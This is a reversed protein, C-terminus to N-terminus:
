LNEAAEEDLLFVADRHLQLYSAPVEPTVPGSFVAAAASAKNSGTMLAVVRRANMLTKMGVTVVRGDGAREVHTVPALEGAGTNFVLGGDEAISVFAVDLGGAKMVRSEYDACSVSWNMSDADPFFLREPAVRVGDLLDKKIRYAVSAEEGARVREYLSFVTVDSWDLLGDGTMKALARYVPRLDETYDLGLVSRPQGILQAALLTAAAAGALDKDRYVLISM